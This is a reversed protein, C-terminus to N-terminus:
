QPFSSSIAVKGTLSNPCYIVPELFPDPNEFAKHRLFDAFFFLLDYQDKKQEKVPLFDTLFL